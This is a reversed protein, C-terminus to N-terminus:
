SVPEKREKQGIFGNVSNKIETITRFNGDPEEKCKVNRQHSEIKNQKLCTWLQKDFCTWLTQKLGKDSLETMDTTKSNAGLSQTKNKM